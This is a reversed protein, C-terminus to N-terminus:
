RDMPRINNKLCGMLEDLEKKRTGEKKAENYLGVYQKKISQPM